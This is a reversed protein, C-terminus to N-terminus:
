DSFTRLNLSKKETNGKQHLTTIKNNRGADTVFLVSTFTKLFFYKKLLFTNFHSNILYWFLFLADLFLKMDAKGKSLYKLILGYILLSPFCSVQDDEPNNGKNDNALSLYHM